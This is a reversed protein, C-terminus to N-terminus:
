SGQPLDQIQGLGDCVRLSPTVSVGKDKSLWHSALLFSCSSKHRTAKIMVRETADKGGEREAEWEGEEGGTM